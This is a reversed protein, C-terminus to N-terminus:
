LLDILIEDDGYFDAGTILDIKLDDIYKNGMFRTTITYPKYKSKTEFYVREGHYHISMVCDDHIVPILEKLKM